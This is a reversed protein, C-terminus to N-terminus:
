DNRRRRYSSSDLPLAEIDVRYFKTDMPLKYRNDMKKIQCFEIHTITALILNRRTAPKQAGSVGMRKMSSEKVFHLTPSSCFVTYSNHVDDWMVLVACGEHIDLLSIMMKMEKLCLRTQTAITNVNVAAIGDDEDDEEMAEKIEDSVQASSEACDKNLLMCSEQIHSGSPFSTLLGSPSLETGSIAQISKNFEMNGLRSELELIREKYGSVQQDYCTQVEERVRDIEKHNREEMGRVLLQMRNKYEKEIDSRITSEKLTVEELSEEHGESGLYDCIKATSETRRRDHEVRLANLEDESLDRKLLNALFDFGVFFPDMNMKEKESELLEIQKKLREVEEKHDKNEKELIGINDSKEMLSKWLEETEQKANSAEQQLNDITAIKESLENEITERKQDALEASKRLDEITANQAEIRENKEAIERNLEDALNTRLEREKQIEGTHHEQINRLLTITQECLAKKLEEFEKAFSKQSESIDHKISLAEGAISHVAGRLPVLERVLKANQMTASNGELDHFNHNVKHFDDGLSGFHDDPTSFYSSKDADSVCPNRTIDLRNMPINIPASRASSSIFERDHDKSEAIALSNTLPRPPDHISASSGSARVGKAMLMAGRNLVPSMEINDDGSLWTTSPFNKTLTGVNASGDRVFFSEERRIGATSISQAIVPDCIMLKAFVQPMDAKLFFELDPVTRRLNRLDEADLKPLAEDFKVKEPCINPVADGLGPFLQRIFHKDLKAFFDSRQHNEEKLFQRCKEIFITLWQDFEKRFSNRRIVETVAIAFMAPADRVQRVVDLRQKLGDYINEHLMMESNASNLREYITKVWGSLRKMINKLVEEKSVLFSDMSKDISTMEALIRMAYEKQQNAFAMCQALDTPAPQLIADWLTKIKKVVDEMSKLQYELQAFRKNIGKIDRYESKRSQERVSRLLDAAKKMETAESALNMQKQAHEAIAKVSYERDKSALWDYLSLPETEITDGDSLLQAPIIIKELTTLVNHFNQIMQQGKDCMNRMKESYGATRELRKELKSISEDLNAMLASWGNTMLKHDRIIQACYVLPNDCSTGFNRAMEFYGKIIESPDQLSELHYVHRRCEELPLRGEREEKDKLQQFDKSVTMYNARIFYIPNNETGANYSSLARNNDLSEGNELLLFQEEIPVDIAQEISKTLETVTALVPVELVMMFGHNVYFVYFM